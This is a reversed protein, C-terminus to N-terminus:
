PREMGMQRDAVLVALAYAAWVDSAGRRRRIQVLGGRDQDVRAAAWEDAEHAYNSM